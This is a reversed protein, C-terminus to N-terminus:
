PVFQIQGERRVIRESLLDELGRKWSWVTWRQEFSQDCERGGPGSQVGWELVAKGMSKKKWRKGDSASPTQERRSVRRRFSEQAGQVKESDKKDMIEKPQKSNENM